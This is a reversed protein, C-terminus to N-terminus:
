KHERTFTDHKMRGKHIARYFYTMRLITLYFNCKLVPGIKMEIVSKNLAKRHTNM